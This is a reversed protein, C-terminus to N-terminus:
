KKKEKLSNSYADFKQFKEELVFCHEILAETFDIVLRAQNKSFYTDPGHAAFNGVDRLRDAWEAVKGSFTGKKSLDAIKKFLNKNGKEGLENCVIELTRRGMITAATYAGANVCRVAESYTSVVNKPVSPGFYKERSPYLYVPDAYAEVWDEQGFHDLEPVLEGSERLLMVQNCQDCIVFTCRIITDPLDEYVIERGVVRAMVAKECRPCHIAEKIVEKVAQDAM